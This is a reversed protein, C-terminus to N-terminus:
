PMDHRRLRHTFRRHFEAVETVTEYGQPSPVCQQLKSLTLEFHM